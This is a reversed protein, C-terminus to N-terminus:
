RHNDEDFALHIGAVFMGPARTTLSVAAVAVAGAGNMM